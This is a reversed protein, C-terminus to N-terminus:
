ISARRRFAWGITSSAGPNQHSVFRYQYWYVERKAIMANRRRPNLVIVAIKQDIRRAITTGYRRLSVDSVGRFSTAASEAPVRWTSDTAAVVATAPMATPIRSWVPSPRFIELRIRVSPAPFRTTVSMMAPMTSHTSPRDSGIVAVYRTATGVTMGARTVSPTGGGAACM